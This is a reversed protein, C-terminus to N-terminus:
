RIFPIGVRTGARYGEYEEFFQGLAREEGKIRSNFFRWLVVTYLVLCGANGCVVQTGLAWWFFGFYSPHRLISYVGHTVLAHGERRRTQVRHNFNPGATAIAATRLTQGLLVLGFGLTIVPAPWRQWSPYFIGTLICEIMAATHAAAYALGNSTLLFADIKAMKPSWRAHAHYELFHFICLCSLFFPPRWLPSTTLTATLLATLASTGLLTGLAFSLVSAKSLSHSGDPLIIRLPNPQEPRWHEHHSQSPSTPPSPSPSASTSPSTSM